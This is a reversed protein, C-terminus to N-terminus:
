TTGSARKSSLEILLLSGLILALTELDLSRWGDAFLVGRVLFVTLQLIAAVVVATILRLMARFWPSEGSKAIWPAGLLVFAFSPTFAILSAFLGGRLGKAAYGVVAM